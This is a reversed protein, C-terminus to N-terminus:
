KSDLPVGHTFTLYPASHEACMPRGQRLLNDAPFDPWRGRLIEFYSYYDVRVLDKTEGKWYHFSEPKEIWPILKVCADRLTKGTPSEYDYLDIDNLCLIEAALTQPLLSFHSYWVGHRGENRNVEHPLHGDEAIQTDTFFKWREACEQLLEKDQLYAACAVALVLGWNGWNNKHSMCNMPLAKERLFQEFAFKDKQAWLEDDRLLEAAFIFAPFLNSFSLTSDEEKSMSKIQNGCFNLLRIAAKAFREESTMRYALAQAYAANADDRLGNKRIKHEEPQVYYWPVFWDAPTQPDRGLEAEATELMQLWATYTPEQKAQINQRLTELRESTNFVPQHSTTM